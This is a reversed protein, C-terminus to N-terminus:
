IYRLVMCEWGLRLLITFRVKAVDSGEHLEGEIKGLRRAIGLALQLVASWVRSHMKRPLAQFFECLDVDEKASEQLASVPNLAPLAISIQVCVHTLKRPERYAKFIGCSLGRYCSSSAREEDEFGYLCVRTERELWWPTLPRVNWLEITARRMRVYKEM